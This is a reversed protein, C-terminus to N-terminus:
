KFAIFSRKSCKLPPSSSTGSGNRYSQNIDRIVCYEEPPQGLLIPRGRTKQGIADIERNTAEIYEKTEEIRRPTLDYGEMDTPQEPVVFPAAMDPLALKSPTIDDIQVIENGVAEQKGRLDEAGQSLGQLKLDHTRIGEPTSFGGDYHRTSQKEM